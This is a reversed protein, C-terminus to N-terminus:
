EDEDDEMKKWCDPCIGTMLIERDNASLDPLLDQIHGIGERFFLYGIEQKPTISVVSEKGCMPCKNSIEM